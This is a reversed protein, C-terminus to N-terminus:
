RAAPLTLTVAAGDTDGHWRVEGSWVAALERLLVCDLRDHWTKSLSVAASRSTHALRSTQIALEIGPGAAHSRFELAASRQGDLEALLSLASAIAQRLLPRPAFTRPAHWAYICEPPPQLAAVIEGVLEPLAVAEAPPAVGALRSLDRLTHALAQTREGVGLLRRIYDQGSPSLRDAEDQELLQLLGRLAVLQNTLDHNLGRRCAHLLRELRALERPDASSM